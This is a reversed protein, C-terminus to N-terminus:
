GQAAAPVSLRDHPFHCTFTSGMGPESTIELRAGHRQLVHKVIALGLGTGGNSRVRSSDVRYFRETLRPIHEPAIGIGTDKVEFHAGDKDSYWRIRIGGTKPTYRVANFVLNSFASYVERESGLLKINTDISLKINDTGSNLAVAENKVRAALGAVDVQEHPAKAEETELRSLELLDNVISAMRTTQRRMEWLPKEWSNAVGEDEGMAELYGSIVTLPSRLEHSANAVFERRMLELQHIRTIDKVILLHQGTGFLVLQLSLRLSSNVPSVIEIPESYNGSNLYYQFEPSRVLNDIRQGLDQSRRLGLLREVANNMWRIQWNDDLVVTGDPMASTSKRFEKLLSALKRKRKQNKKHVRYYHHFVENWIGRSEPPLSKRDHALWKDLCYLNYLHWALYATVGVLLMVAIHGVLAGIILMATFFFGAALFERSWFSHM